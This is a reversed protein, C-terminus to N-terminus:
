ANPKRHDSAVQKGDADYKYFGEGTKVGLHGADVHKKLLDVPGKPLNPNEEEYHQEIDLVVDLGVHDMIQFPGAPTGLNIRWMGDVDEPTAVGEAVVQLSERKIAAWIRNFIFGTSKKQAVFPYIGYYPLQQKLLGIIAPDTHGDSM